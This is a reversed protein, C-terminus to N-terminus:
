PSFGHGPIAIFHGSTRRAFQLIAKIHVKADADRSQNGIVHRGAEIHLQLAFVAHQAKAGERILAFFISVQDIGALLGDRM